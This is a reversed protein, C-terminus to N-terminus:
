RLLGPAVFLLALVVLVSGADRAAQRARSSALLERAWHLYRWRSGGRCAVGAPAQCPKVPCAVELPNM